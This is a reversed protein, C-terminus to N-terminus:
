LINYIGYIDASVGNMDMDIYNSSSAMGCKGFVVLELKKSGFQADKTINLYGRALAM